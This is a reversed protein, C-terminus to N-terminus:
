LSLCLALRKILSHRHSDSECKAEVRVRQKQTALLLIWIDRSFFSLLLSQHMHRYNNNVGKGMKGVSTLVLFENALWILSGNM